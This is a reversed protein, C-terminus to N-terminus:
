IGRCSGFSRFYNPRWSCSSKSFTCSNGRSCNSIRKIIRSGILCM